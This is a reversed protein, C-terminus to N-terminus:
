NGVGPIPFQIWYQENSVTIGREYEIWEYERSPEIHVLRHFGIMWSAPEWVHVAPFASWPDRSVDKVVTAKGDEILLWQVCPAGEVTGYRRKLGYKGKGDRFVQYAKFLKENSAAFEHRPPMDEVWSSHVRWPIMLTRAILARSLFLVLVTLIVLTVKRKM